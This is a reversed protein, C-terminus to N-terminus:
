FLCVKLISHRKFFADIECKKYIYLKLVIFTFLSLMLYIIAFFLILIKKLASKIHLIVYKSFIFGDLWKIKTLYKHLM